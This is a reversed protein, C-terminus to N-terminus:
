KVLLFAKYLVYLLIAGYTIIAIPSSPLNVEEESYTNENLKRIIKM